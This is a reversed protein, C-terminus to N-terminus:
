IAHLTAREKFLKQILLRTLFGFICGYAIGIFGGVLIDGFYHKGVFIRSIAVLFAWLLIFVAYKNYKFKKDNKFGYITVAALGFANASHASFFGFLSSRGELIHLGGTLMDANYCPRLRGISYKFLNSTQDCAAITLGVSLMVILGKKFGLRRFVFYAMIAYMPFWLEKKSLFMMINDSLGSHLHNLSLTIVQDWQHLIEWIM